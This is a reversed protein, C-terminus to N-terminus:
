HSSHGYIYEYVKAILCIIKNSKNCELITYGYNHWEIVFRARRWFCVLSCIYMAPIGPPKQLILFNFKSITM